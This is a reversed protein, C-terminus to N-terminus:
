SLRVARANKVFRRIFPLYIFINSIAIAAAQPPASAPVFPIPIAAANASYRIRFRHPSFPGRM